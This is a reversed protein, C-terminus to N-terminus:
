WVTDSIQYQKSRPRLTQIEILLMLNIKSQPPYVQIKIGNIQQKPL